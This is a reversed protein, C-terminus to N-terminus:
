DKNGCMVNFLELSWYGGNAFEANGGCFPYPKLKIESM